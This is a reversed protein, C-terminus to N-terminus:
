GARAGEGRGRPRRYAACYGAAGRPVGPSVRAHEAARGTDKSGLFRDRMTNWDIAQSSGTIPKISARTLQESEWVAKEGVLQMVGNQVNTLHGLIWNACNGGTSPQALSQEHTMADLNAAAVMYTLGFHQAVAEQVKM